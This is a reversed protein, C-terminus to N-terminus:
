SLNAIRRIQLKFTGAGPIPVVAQQGGAEIFVATAHGDLTASIERAEGVPVNWTAPASGPNRLTLESLVVVEQEGSWTVHHTAGILIIKPSEAPREARPLQQLFLYDSERLVVRTPKQGPEFSGEYPFLVPIRADQERRAEARAVSLLVLTLIMPSA